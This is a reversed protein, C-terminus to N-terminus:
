LPPQNSKNLTAETASFVRMEHNLGMFASVVGYVHVERMCLFSTEGLHLDSSLNGM